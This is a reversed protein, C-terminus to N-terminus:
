PMRGVGLDRAEEAIVAHELLAAFQHEGARRVDRQVGVSGQRGLHGTGNRELVAETQFQSQLNM